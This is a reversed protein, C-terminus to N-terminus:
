FEESTLEFSMRPLIKTNVLFPEIKIDKMISTFAGDKQTGDMEKKDKHM